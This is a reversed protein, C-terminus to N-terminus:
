DSTVARVLNAVQSGIDKLLRIQEDGQRSSTQTLSALYDQGPARTLFRAERLSPDRFEDNRGAKKEKEAYIAALSLAHQADIQNLLDQAVARRAETEEADDLIKQLDERMSKEQRLLELRKAETEAAKDGARGAQGLLEIRTKLLLDLSRAQREEERKYVAAQEAQDLQGQTQKQVAILRAIEAEIKEIDRRREEIKAKYAPDDLDPVNEPYAGPGSGLRTVLPPAPMPSEEIKKLADQQKLLGKSIEEGVKERIGQFRRRLAEETGEPFLIEVISGRAGKYAEGGAEMAEVVAKLLEAEERAGTIEEGLERGIKAFHGLHFPLSELEAQVGEWDGHIAKSLVAVGELAVAM